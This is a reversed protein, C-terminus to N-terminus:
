LCEINELGIKIDFEQNEYYKGLQLLYDKNNQGKKITEKYKYIYLM